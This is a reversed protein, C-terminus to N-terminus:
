FFGSNNLPENRLEALAMHLLCGTVSNPFNEIDQSLAKGRDRTVPPEFGTTQLERRSRPTESPHFSPDIRESAPTWPGNPLTPQRSLSWVTTQTRGPRGLVRYEDFSIKNGEDENQIREIEKAAM